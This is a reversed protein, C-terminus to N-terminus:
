YLESIKKISKIGLGNGDCAFSNNTNVVLSELFYNEKKEYSIENSTGPLMKNEKKFIKDFFNKIRNLFSM